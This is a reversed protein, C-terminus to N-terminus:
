PGHRRSGADAPNFFTSVYGLLQVIVGGLSLGAIREMMTSLNPSPSRGKSLAGLCVQSDMLQLARTGVNAAVRLRWRLALFDSRLELENIHDHHQWAGDTVRRWNWWEANIENRPWRTPTGFIGTSRIDNGVHTQRRLLEVVM